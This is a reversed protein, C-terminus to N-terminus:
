EDYAVLMYYFKLLFIIIWEMVDKLIFLLFSICNIIAAISMIGATDLENRFEVAFRSFFIHVYSFHSSILFQVMSQEINAPLRLRWSLTIPKGSLHFIFINRTYNTKRGALHPSWVTNHITTWKWRHYLPPCEFPYLNANCDISQM